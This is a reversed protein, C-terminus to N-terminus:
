SLAMAGIRPYCKLVKGVLFFLGFAILFIVADFAGHIFSNVVALGVVQSLVLVLTVRVINAVLVIPLVLLILLLRRPLASHALGVILVGLCLLALLSNMGSCAQAVVFHFNGAYLDVGSRRVPVGLLSAAQASYRATIGQMQFGIPVFLGRYLSMGITLFMIPFFSVRATKVGYLYVLAGLVTLLFSAGGIARISSHMDVVLLVMGCLILPLGAWSGRGLSRRIAERRLWLLGASVLPMAFGFSLEEDVSWLNIAHAFVPLYLVFLAIAVIAAAILPGRGMPPTQLPAVVAEQGRNKRERAGFPMFSM